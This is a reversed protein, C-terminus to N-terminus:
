RTRSQLTETVTFQSRFESSICARLRSLFRKAYYRLIVEINKTAKYAQHYPQSLYGTFGQISGDAIIKVRPVVVRGGEFEALDVEGSILQEGV